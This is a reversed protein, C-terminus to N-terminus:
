ILNTKQADKQEYLKRVRRYSHGHYCKKMSQCSSRRLDVAGEAKAEAASTPPYKLVSTAQAARTGDSRCLRIEARAPHLRTNFPHMHVSSLASILELCIGLGLDQMACLNWWGARASPSPFPLAQNNLRRFEFNACRLSLYGRSIVTKNGARLYSPARTRAAAAASLLLSKGVPWLSTLTLYLGYLLGQLRLHVHLANIFVYIRTYQPTRTATNGTHTNQSGSGTTSSIFLGRGKLLSLSLLVIDQSGPICGCKSRPETDTYACTRPFPPRPPPPPGHSAQSEALLLVRREDEGRGDPLGGHAWVCSLHCDM